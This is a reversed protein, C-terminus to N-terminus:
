PTEVLALRRLQNKDKLEQVYVELRPDVRAQLERELAMVLRPQDLKKWAESLGLEVRVDYRISAVSADSAELGFSPLVQALAAELRQKRQELTAALWDPRPRDDYQGRTVDFGSLRRYSALAGRLLEEVLAFHPHVARPLVIGNLPRSSTPRLRHELRLAGHYAAELLPLGTVLRCLEALLLQRVQDPAQGEASVILHDRDSIALELTCGDHSFSLAVGPGDLEAKGPEAVAALQRLRREYADFSVAAPRAPGANAEAAAQRELAPLAKREPATASPSALPAAGLGSVEFLLAAGRREVRVQGFAQGLETLETESLQRATNDGLQLCISGRGLSAASDLLNRLSVAVNEDPVWLELGKVKASFGRLTDVLSQSYDAYLADYDIVEADFPVLAAANSM